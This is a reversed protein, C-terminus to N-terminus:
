GAHSPSFAGENIVAIRDAVRIRPRPRAVCGTVHGSDAASSSFKRAIVVASASRAREDTRRYLILQPDIVLARAIAVRKKM